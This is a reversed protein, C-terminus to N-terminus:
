QKVNCFYLMKSALTLCKIQSFYYNICYFIFNLVKSINVMQKIKTLYFM